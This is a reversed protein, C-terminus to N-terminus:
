ETLSRASPGDYTHDTPHIRRMPRERSQEEHVQAVLGPVRAMMFFANAIARPMEMDILLAAIAGDV